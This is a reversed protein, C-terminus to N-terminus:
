ETSKKRDRLADWHGEYYRDFEEDNDYEEGNSPPIGEKSEHYGRKWADFEGNTWKRRVAEAAGLAAIAAGVIALSEIDM